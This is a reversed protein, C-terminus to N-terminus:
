IAKGDVVETTIKDAVLLEPRDSNMEALLDGVHSAIEGGKKDLHM